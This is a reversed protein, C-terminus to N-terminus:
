KTSVSLRSLSCSCTISCISLVPLASNLGRLCFEALFSVEAEAVVPWGSAAGVVRNGIESSSSCSNLCSASSHFFFSPSGEVM